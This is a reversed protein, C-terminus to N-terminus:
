QPLLAYHVDIMCIECDFKWSQCILLHLCSYEESRRKLTFVIIKHRISKTSQM